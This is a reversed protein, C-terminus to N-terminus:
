AAEVLRNIASQVTGSFCERGFRRRVAVPIGDHEAKRHNLLHDITRVLDCESVCPGLEGDGLADRAGAVDLGLAPIGSAMAELFSVGFGEGTSPMVFVDAARYTEILTQLDIAGLFKVRDNVGIEAALAELRSRDDGEGVILYCIDHGRKVLELIAVMVREQGKYRESAVMRGVTLLVRKGELGLSARQKSGDGPTFVERFTDPVVLAREPVIAAWGLVAARTYRSVSLVLDAREVALQLLRSPRPWAEVGHTQVILKARKMWAILAALPAMYLHGCFVVDISAFLAKRFAVISYAFRTTRATLQQIASPPNVSDRAYRPLVTISSFLASDALAELFDRNYQAIGGCEGYAETILALLKYRHKKM